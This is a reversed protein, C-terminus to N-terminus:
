LSCQMDLWMAVKAVSGHEESGSVPCVDPMVELSCQMDHCMAVKALEESGSVPCVDPMGWAAVFTLICHLM